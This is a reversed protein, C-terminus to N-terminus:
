VNVLRPHWCLDIRDCSRFHGENWCGLRFYFEEFQALLTIYSYVGYHVYAIYPSRFSTREGLLCSLCGIICEKEKTIAVDIFM